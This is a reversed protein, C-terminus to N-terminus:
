GYLRLSYWFLVLTELSLRELFNYLTAKAHSKLILILFLILMASVIVIILMSLLLLAAFTPAQQWHHTLPLRCSCTMRQRYETALLWHCTPLYPPPLHPSSFLPLCSFTSAFPAHAVTM